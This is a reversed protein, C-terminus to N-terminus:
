CSRHIRYIARWPCSPIVKVRRDEAALKRLREQTQDTSANDIFLMEFRIDPIEAMVSAVRQYLLEVNGEENYCPVM